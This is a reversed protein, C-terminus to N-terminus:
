IMLENEENAELTEYEPVFYITIPGFSGIIPKRASKKGGWGFVQARNAFLRGTKLVERCSLILTNMTM